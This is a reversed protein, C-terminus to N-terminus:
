GMPFPFTINTANYWGNGAVGVGKGELYSAIM